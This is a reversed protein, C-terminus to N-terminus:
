GKQENAIIKALEAQREQADLLFRGHEDTKYVDARTKIVAGGNNAPPTPTKVTVTDTNTIFDAWETKLSKELDAAGDIEGKDNLKISDIDSVKVVTDIRKENIGAKHLLERFKATKVDRDAKNQTEKKFADFDKKLSDYKTKYDDGNDKDAKLRDREKTVEALKDADARFRAIDDKLGDVVGIHLAMIANEMEDTCDSGIIRRIDARTFKPM